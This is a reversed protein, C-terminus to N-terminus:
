RVIPEEKWDGDDLPRPRPGKLALVRTRIGSPVGRWDTSAADIVGAVLRDLAIAGEFAYGRRRAELVPTFNLPGVLLARLVDRGSEVNRTLLGRWDALKARLRQELAPGATPAVTRAAALMADIEVRRAQRATLRELLADLPGGRGIAEALRECEARVELLERELKGHAVEQRRPSFEELALAVAEEIITPRLIDEQLTALVEGDIAEMRAVLGNGCAEPGRKWHTTCAYFHVRRRGTRAATLRSGAAVSRAGPSAQCCTGPPAIAAAVPRTNRRASPGRGNRRQGSCMRSSRFARRRCVSGSPAPARDRM